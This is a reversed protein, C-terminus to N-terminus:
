KFAFAGYAYKGNKTYGFAAHTISSSMMWGWHPRSGRWSTFMRKTIATDSGNSSVMCCNELSRGSHTLRRQHAMHKSWERAHKELQSDYKLPPIHRKRRKKNVMALIERNKRDVRIHFRRRHRQTIRIGPGTHFIKHLTSKLRSLIRM